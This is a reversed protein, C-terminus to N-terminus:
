LLFADFVRQDGDLGAKLALADIAVGEHGFELVSLGLLYLLNRCLVNDAAITGIADHASRSADLELRSRGHAFHPKPEGEESEGSM